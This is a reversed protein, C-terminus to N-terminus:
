EVKGEIKDATITRLGDDTANEPTVTVLVVAALPGRLRAQQRPWDDFAKLWVWDGPRLDLAELRDLDAKIEAYTKM